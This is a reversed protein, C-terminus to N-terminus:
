LRCRFFRKVPGYFLPCDTLIHLYEGASGWKSCVKPVSLAGVEVVIGSHNPEGEESYYVVIDGPLVDELKLEVWNDDTLIRQISQPEVIRTRRSAFTLGHCNYLPSLDTRPVIRPYQRPIDAAWNREFDSVDGLQFNEIGTRKSTELRIMPQLRSSLAGVM